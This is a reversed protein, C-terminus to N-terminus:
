WDYGQMYGWDLWARAMEKMDGRADELVPNERTLAQLAWFWHDPDDGEDELQRLILPIAKEGMGIIRQYSACMAMRTISSTAGKEKRWQSVLQQFLAADSIVAYTPQNNSRRQLLRNDGLIYFQGFGKSLTRAEFQVIDADDVNTSVTSGHSQVGLMIPPAYSIVREGQLTAATIRM